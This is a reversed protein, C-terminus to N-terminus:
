SPDSSSAGANPGRSPLLGAWQQEMAARVEKAGYGREARVWRALDKRLPKLVINDVIHGAYRTFICVDISGNVAREAIRALLNADHEPWEVHAFGFAERIRDRNAIRPSGGVIVAHKGRTLHWFPWDAPPADKFAPPSAPEVHANRAAKRVRALRGDGKLEHHRGGVLKLLRPNDHEVGADLAHVVAARLAQGALAPASAALATLALDAARAETAATKSPAPMLSALAANADGDWTGTAPFHNRGLGIVYGRKREVVWPLLGKIVAEAEASPQRLQLARLRATLATLMAQVVSDPLSTILNLHQVWATLRPPADADLPAQILDLLADRHRAAQEALARDAEHRAGGIGVRALKALQAADARPGRPRPRPPTPTALPPEPSPPTANDVELATVQAPEAGSLLSIGMPPRAGDAEDEPPPSAQHARAEVSASEERLPPLGNEPDVLEISGGGAVWCGMAHGLASAEADRAQTAAIMDAWAGPDGGPTRALLAHLGRARVDAQRWGDLHQEVQSALSELSVLVTNM